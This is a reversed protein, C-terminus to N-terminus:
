EYDGRSKWRDNGSNFQFLNRFRYRSNGHENGGQKQDNTKKNEDSIIESQGARQGGPERKKRFRSLLQEFTMTKYIKQDIYELENENEETLLFNPEFVTTEGGSLFSVRSKGPRSAIAMQVLAALLVCREEEKVCLQIKYNNTDVIRLIRFCKYMQRYTMSSKFKELAHGKPARAMQCMVEQVDWEQSMDMLIAERQPFFFEKAKGEALVNECFEELEIESLILGHLIDHRRPEKKTGEVKHACSVAYEGDALPYISICLQEANKSILELCKEELELEEGWEEQLAVPARILVIGGKSRDRDAIFSKANWDIKAESNM